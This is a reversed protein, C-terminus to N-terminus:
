INENDLIGSKRVTISRARRLMWERNEILKQQEDPTLERKFHFVINRLERIEDLRTLARSKFWEGEGGFADKFYPWNDEHRLMIIYEAYTMEDLSSPLRRKKYKESFCVRICEHLQMDTICAMILNRLALEMESLLIFPYSISHLFRAADFSTIVAQLRNSLGIFAVEDNELLELLQSIEDYIQLYKPKDLFEEVPLQKFDINNDLNKLLRKVFSQYSFFGLVEDGVMISLQSYKHREMLEFADEVSTYPDVRIKELDWDKPIVNNIQKFIDTVAISVEFGSFLKKKEDAEIM